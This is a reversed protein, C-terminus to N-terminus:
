VSLSLRDMARPLNLCSPLVYLVIGHSVSTNPVFYAHRMNVLLQKLFSYVQPRKHFGSVSSDRLQISRTGV